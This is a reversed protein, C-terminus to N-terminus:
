ATPFRPVARAEGGPPSARPAPPWVQNELSHKQRQQEIRKELEPQQVALVSQHAEWLRVAEQFYSFLDLSQRESQKALAEFSKDLCELEEEAKSQLAGVMQYFSPRVLNEAEEETFAKWDLLQKKCEQVHGLCEQWTKEYQLRIQMLCDMHYTDVDANLSNFSSYWEALQAKSYNPPLLDSPFSSIVRLGRKFLVNM